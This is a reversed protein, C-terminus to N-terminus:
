QSFLLITFVLNGRDATRYLRTCACAYACAQPFYAIQISSLAYILTQAIIFYFLFFDPQHPYRTAHLRSLVKSRSAGGYDLSCSLPFELLSLYHGIIPSIIQLAVVRSTEENQTVFSFCDWIQASTVAVWVECTDSLTSRSHKEWAYSIKRWINNLHGAFTRHIQSVDNLCRKSTKWIKQFCKSM